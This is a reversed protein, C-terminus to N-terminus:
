PSGYRERHAQNDQHMEAVDDADLRNQEGVECAWPFLWGLIFIIFMMKMFTPFDINGDPASDM